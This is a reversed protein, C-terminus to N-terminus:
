TGGEAVIGTVVGVVGLVWGTTGAFRSLPDAGAETAIAACIFSVIAASLVTRWVATSYTRLRDFM